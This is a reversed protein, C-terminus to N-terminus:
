KGLVFDYLAPYNPTQYVNRGSGANEAYSITNAVTLWIPFKGKKIVAISIYDMSYAMGDGVMHEASIVYEGIKIDKGATCGNGYGSANYSEEGPILGLKVAQKVLSIFFTEEIAWDKTPHAWGMIPKLIKSM